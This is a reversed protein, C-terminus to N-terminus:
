AAAGETLLESVPVGLVQALAEIIDLRPNGGGGEIYKITRTSVGSREALTQLTV